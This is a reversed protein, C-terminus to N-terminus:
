TIGLVRLGEARINVAANVDRDHHAGCVPCTWERVKLNKVEPNQTECSSCKQSSPFWRNTRVLRKGRETLKYDLLDRFMGYGNDLTAKGNGFNSNALAKMDIDEVCVADCSDALERSKKHLYDLRQNAVHEHILAVKLSQKRINKCDSIPKRYVPVRKGNVTKYGSINSEIKRSLKRKERSLKKESKRLWHPMDCTDGQDTVFLGDSKYDLERVQKEDVPATCIDVETEYLVSVFYRENKCSVTARLFRYSDPLKGKSCHLWGLCPLKVRRNASDYDITSNNTTTYSLSCHKKAKFNPYGCQKKFFRTFADNLQRCAYKLAQSDAEKLWPLYKKMKPLLNQMDYYSLHKKRREYVKNSRELMHNYVYRCSGITKDITAKQETDPYIRVKLARNLKTKM